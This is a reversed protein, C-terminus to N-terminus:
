INFSQAIINVACAALAAITILSIASQLMSLIKVRASLILTDTPSFATSTNFALFIYDIFEPRWESWDPFSNAQQPFIFDRRSANAKVREHPGGGDVLWYAVAATIINVLWVILADWLLNFGIGEVARLPLTLILTVVSIVLGLAVWGLYIFSAIRSLKTNKNLWFVFATLFLVTSVALYILDSWPDAQSSFLREVTLMDSLLVDMIDVVLLALLIQWGSDVQRHVIDRRM